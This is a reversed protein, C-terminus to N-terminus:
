PEPSECKHEPNEFQNFDRTDGVVLEPGRAGVLDRPYQDDGEGADDARQDPLEGFAVLYEGRHASRRQRRRAPIRL